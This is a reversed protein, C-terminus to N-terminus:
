KWGDVSNIIEWKTPNSNVWDAVTGPKLRDFEQFSIHVNELDMMKDLLGAPSDLVEDPTM